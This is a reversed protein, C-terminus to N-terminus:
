IIYGDTVWKRCQAADNATITGAALKKDIQELADPKDLWPYPGCAPFNEVRFEDIAEINVPIEAFYRDRFERDVRTKSKMSARTKRIARKFQTVVYHKATGLASGM